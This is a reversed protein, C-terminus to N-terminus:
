ILDPWSYDTLIEQLNKCEDAYRRFEEHFEALLQMVATIDGCIRPWHERIRHRLQNFGNLRVGTELFSNITELEKDTFIYSRL